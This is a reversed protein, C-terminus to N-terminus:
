TNNYIILSHSKKDYPILKRNMMKYNLIPDKIGLIQKTIYNINIDLTKLNKTFQVQEIDVSNGKYLEIFSSYNLKNNKNNIGKAKIIIENNVTNILYFKKSLYFGEKIIYELKFKGLNKGVFIPNLPKSLIVSDTDGGLYLNDPMNKFQNLYMRAYATIASSYQVSSSSSGWPNPANFKNNVSSYLKEDDMIKIIEPDLPGSSRVLNYNNCKFLIDSNETHLLKKIYKDEILSLKFSRQKLGLIGYLSNLLLKFIFRKVFNKNEDAECKLKYIDDVYKDFTNYVKDFQICNIIKKIKYGYNVAMKLEESFWVGKVTNRFLRTEGEFKIPLIATKLDIESPAEVIAEVYGFIREINKESSIRPRGGPMPNKMANPYHSNVDYKYTLFDTYNINVDVIGGVYSRRIFKELKGKSLYITAKDDDYYSSSFILFSLGSITRVRTINIKFMDFIIKNFCVIVDFLCVLDKKLYNFTEKKIDWKDYKYLDIFNLYKDYTINDFYKFSPVEGIFNLTKESVFKYPFLGKEFKTNFIKSLNDLSVPLLKLSDFISIKIRKKNKLKKFIDISLMNGENDSHIKIKYNHKYNTKILSKLIIIGDFESMNHAYLKLNNNKSIFLTNICELIMDDSSLFDNIYFLHFMDITKFGISYCLADGNSDNYTEIDIAGINNDREINCLSTLLKKSNYVVETNIIKNNLFKVLYGTKDSIRDVEVKEINDVKNLSINDIWKEIHLLYLINKSSYNDLYFDNWIFKDGIFKGNLKDFNTLYVDVKNIYNNNEVRIIYYKNKLVFKYILIKDDLGGCSYKLNYLNSFMNIIDDSLVDGYNLGMVNLCFYFKNKNNILDGSFFSIDNLNSDVNVVDKIDILKNKFLQNDNYKIKNLITDFSKFEDFSIWEKIFIDLNITESVSYKNVIISLNTVFKYLLINLDMDRYIFFSPSTNFSTKYGGLIDIDVVQWRFIIKYVRGKDLNILINYFKIKYNHIIDSEKGLVGLNNMHDINVDISDFFKVIFDDEMYNIGYLSEILVYDSIFSNSFVRNKTNDINNLVVNNFDKVLVNNNRVIDDIKYFNKKDLKNKSLYKRYFGGNDILSKDVGISSDSFSQRKEFFKNFGLNYYLGYAFVSKNYFSFNFVRKM